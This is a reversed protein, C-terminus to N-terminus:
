HSGRGCGFGREFGVCIETCVISNVWQLSRNGDFAVVWLNSLYAMRRSSSDWYPHSASGGMTMVAHMLPVMCVVVVLCRWIGRELDM